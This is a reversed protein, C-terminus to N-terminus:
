QGNTKKDKENDGEDMSDKITCPEVSKSSDFLDILKDYAPTDKGLPTFSLLALLLSISGFIIYYIKLPTFFATAILIVGSFILGKVNSKSLFIAPLDKLSFRYRSKSLYPLKGYRKLLKYIAKIKVPTIYIDYNELLRTAKREVGKAFLFVRRKNYKTATLYINPLDSITVNGFKFNVYILANELCVYNLGSEFVRNQLISKLIEVLFSPGKIALELALRDQQYPKEGRRGLKLVIVLFVSVVTVSVILSLAVSELALGAWVFTLFGIILTISVYDVIRAM